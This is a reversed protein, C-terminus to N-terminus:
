VGTNRSKHAQEYSQLAYRVLGTNIGNEVLHAHVGLRGVEDINWHLDDFFLMENFPVGTKKALANFHKVKSSPYIEMVDFLKDWGHVRILQLASEPFVTRSACALLVGDENKISELLYNSDPCVNVAEGNSDLVKTGKKQFKHGVFDDCDFPWLTLDLDFVILKPKITLGSFLGDTMVAPKNPVQTVGRRTLHCINHSTCCVNNPPFGWGTFSAKTVYRVAQILRM